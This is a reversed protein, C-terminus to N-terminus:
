PGKQRQREAEQIVKLQYDPDLARLDDGKFIEPLQTAFIKLQDPVVEAGSVIFDAFRKVGAFIDQSENSVNLTATPQSITVQPAPQTEPVKLPEVTVQSPKPQEVPAITPQEENYDIGFQSKYVGDSKIQQAAEQSPKLEDDENYDIGFNSRYVM